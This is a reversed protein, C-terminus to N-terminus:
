ETPTPTMEAHVIAKDDVVGVDFRQVVRLWTAYQKFGAEDSKAIETGLKDYFTIFEEFDGIYFVLNKSTKPQIEEDSFVEIIKGKLMKKTPETLCPQLLPLGNGDKQKDLWDFSTQNTVIRANEAIAPDLDVNLITGIDDIGKITKVNVAKLKEIILKNETRVSAKAFESGIFSMINVDTDQLLQKAVPLLLGYDKVAWNKQAFKLDKEQLTDLEEFNLLELKNDGEVNYKGTRSNVKKVRCLDKLSRRRRKWEKIEREQEETLLFGGRENVAGLQGTEPSANSILHKNAYEQEAETLKLGNLCKNLVRNPKVKENNEVANGNKAANNIDLAEEAEAIKLEKTLNTIEDAIKMADDLKGENKLNMMSLTKDNIKKRLETSLKM